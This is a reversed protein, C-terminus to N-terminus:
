NSDDVRGFRFGLLDALAQELQLILIQYFKGISDDGDFSFSSRYLQVLKYIGGRVPAAAPLKQPSRIPTRKKFGIM